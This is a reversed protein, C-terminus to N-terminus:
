DQQEVELSGSQNAELDILSADEQTLYNSVFKTRLRIPGTSVFDIRSEVPQSPNFGMAVNTVRADFEYWIIDDFDEPRGSPKDGRGVLTFKAHFESGIETRLILQHMYLPMELIDDGGDTMADCDRREYEFFCNVTGSGSILGSYQQKFESSLASIDIADRSTNLEFDKVQALVRFNSNCVEVSIQVSEGPNVLDVRGAIEGSMAEDFTSYLRIAGVEDVYIYWKGDRYQKNTPWGTPAIFSLVGGGDTRKIEIMDGTILSGLPFNFSFRNKDPNVDSDNVVSTFTEDFQTRRLEVCGASGLYIGM